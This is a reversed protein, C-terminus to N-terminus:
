GLVAAAGGITILGIASGAPASDDAPDGGSAGAACRPSQVEVGCVVCDRYAVIEAEAKWVLTSEARGSADVDRGVAVDVELTTAIRSRTAARAM